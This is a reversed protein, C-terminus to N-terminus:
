LGELWTCPNSGPESKASSDICNLSGCWWGELRTCSRDPPEIGGAVTM